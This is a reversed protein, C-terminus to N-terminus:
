SILAHTRCLPYMCVQFSLCCWLRRCNTTIQLLRGTGTVSGLVTVVLATVALFSPLVLVYISIQVTYNYFILKKRKRFYEQHLQFIKYQLMSGRVSTKSLDPSICLPSCKKCCTSRLSNVIWRCCRMTCIMTIYTNQMNNFDYWCNCINFYSLM